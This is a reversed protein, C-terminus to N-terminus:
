KRMKMCEPCSKMALKIVGMLIFLVTFWSINWFNWVNLDQLLFLIGFILFLVGSVGMCKKCGDMM